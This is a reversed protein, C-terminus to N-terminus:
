LKNKNTGCDCNIKLRLINKIRMKKAIIIKQIAIM